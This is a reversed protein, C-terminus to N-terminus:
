KLERTVESYNPIRRMGKGLVGERHLRKALDKLVNDYQSKSAPLQRIFLQMVPSNMNALDLWSLRDYARKGISRKFEKLGHVLAAHEMHTQHVMDLKKGKGGFHSAQARDVDVNSYYDGKTAKLKDRTKILGKTLYRNHFTDDLWHSLEHAISSKFSLADLSYSFRKFDSRLASKVLSMDFDYSRLIGHEKGGKVVRIENREPWYHTGDKGSFITFGVIIEVPNIKHADKCVKSKLKSSDTFLKEKAVKECIRILGLSDINKDRLVGHLKDLGAANYLFDVDSKINFTAETLLSRSELREILERM